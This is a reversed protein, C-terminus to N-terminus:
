TLLNYKERSAAQYFRGLQENFVTTLFKNVKEQPLGTMYRKQFTASAGSGMAAYRYKIAGREGFDAFDAIHPANNGLLVGGGSLWTAFDGHGNTRVLTFLATSAIILAAISALIYLQAHPVCVNYYM